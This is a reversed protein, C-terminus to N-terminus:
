DMPEDDAVDAEDWDVVDCDKAEEMPKCDVAECGHYAAVDVIDKPGHLTGDVKGKIECGDDVVVVVECGKGEGDNAEVILECSLATDNCDVSSTGEGVISILM